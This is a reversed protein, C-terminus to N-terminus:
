NNRWLRHSFEGGRWETVYRGGRCERRGFCDLKGYESSSCTGFWLVKLLLYSYKLVGLLGQLVMKSLMGVLVEPFINM